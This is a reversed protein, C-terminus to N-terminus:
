LATEPFPLGPEDTQAAKRVIIRSPTTVVGVIQLSGLALRPVFIRQTNSRVDPPILFIGCDAIADDLVTADLAALGELVEGDRFTLRLWLGETRPRALFTKRTLREPDSADGLNFDRVYAVYRVDGLPIPKIKGATDLLDITSTERNVVGSAPLYGTEVTGSARRMIVKKRSIAM